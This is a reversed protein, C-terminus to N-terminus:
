RECRRRRRVCVRQDAEGVRNVMPSLSPVACPLHFLICPEPPPRSRLVMLASSAAITYSKKKARRQTPNFGLQSDQRRDGKEEGDGKLVCTVPANRRHLAHVHVLLIELVGTWAWETPAAAVVSFFRFFSAGTGSVCVHVGNRELRATPPLFLLPANCTQLAQM